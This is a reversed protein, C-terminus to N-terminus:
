ARSESKGCSLLPAFLFVHTEPVADVLECVLNRFEHYVDPQSRLRVIHRLERANVTMILNTLLSEPLFPKIYDNPVGCRSMEAIWSSLEQFSKLANQASIHQANDQAYTAAKCETNLTTPLVGSSGALIKKLAWRTSEVSLSVHRHRSLELLCGRSLRSISFTYVLHELVSEHGNDILKQIFMEPDTTPVRDTSATCTLGAIVAIRLDSYGICEVKM